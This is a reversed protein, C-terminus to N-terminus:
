HLGSTSIYLGMTALVLFLSQAFVSCQTLTSFHGVVAGGRMPTLKVPLGHQCQVLEPLSSM